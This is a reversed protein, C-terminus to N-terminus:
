RLMLLWAVEASSIQVVIYSTTVVLNTFEADIFQLYNSELRCRAIVQAIVMM